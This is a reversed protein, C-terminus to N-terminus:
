LRWIQLRKDWMLYMIDINEGNLNQVEKYAQIVIVVGRDMNNPIETHSYSYYIIISNSIWKFVWVPCFLM